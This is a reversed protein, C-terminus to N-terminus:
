RMLGILNVVLLLVILILSVYEVPIDEPPYQRSFSEERPEGLDSEFREWFQNRWDLAEDSTIEFKNFLIEIVTPLRILDEIMELREDEGLNEILEYVSVGNGRLAQILLYEQHELKM